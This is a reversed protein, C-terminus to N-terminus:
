VLYKGPIISVHEFVLDCDFGAGGLLFYDFGCRAFESDIKAGFRM